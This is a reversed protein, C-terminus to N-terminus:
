KQDAKSMIRGFTGDAKMANMADSVKKALTKGIENSPFAYYVDQKSLPIQKDYDIQDLLNVNKFAQLGTKEEVVFADIRGAALKKANLEDSDAADMIVNKNGTLEAVYPYGKTIGIKKGELGKITNLMPTGKKIFAFDQKVYISDSREIKAGAPFNVDLAPFISQVSGKQFNDVTRLPPEVKISVTLGARKAIEKTLEVFVGNNEDIVMLPIPFTGFVFEEALAGFPIAIGLCVLCSLAFLAKKVAKKM